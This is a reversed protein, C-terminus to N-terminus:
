SSYLSLKGFHVYASAFELILHPGDYARNGKKRQVLFLPEEFTLDSFNGLEFTFFMKSTYM